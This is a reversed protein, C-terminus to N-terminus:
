DNVAAEALLAAQLWVCEQLTDVARDVSPRHLVKNRQTRQKQGSDCHLEAVDCENDLRLSVMTELATGAGLMGDM